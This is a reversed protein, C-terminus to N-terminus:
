DAASGNDRRVWQTVPKRSHNGRYRRPGSNRNKSSGPRNSSGSSNTNTPTATNSQEQNTAEKTPAPAATTVPTQLYMGPSVAITKKPEILGSNEQQLKLISEFKQRRTNESESKLFEDDSAETGDSILQSSHSDVLDLVHEFDKAHFAKRCVPCNGISEDGEEQAGRDRLSRLTTDSSIKTDAEKKTQLWNWWRIICESHFCHFCSMLKMFPLASSQDSESMLPYLCMPCDGDPHNMISLREVAEECLAVLMLCSTLEHAKAQISSIMHKQRQGDLGKSDILYISPPEEPYKPGARVGIVAEM